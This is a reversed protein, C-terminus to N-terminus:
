SHAVFPVSSSRILLSHFPHAASSCGVLLPHAVFSCRILLSHAVFSCRIPLSPSWRSCTWRPKGPGDHVPGDHNKLDMTAPGDHEFVLFFLSHVDAGYWGDEKKRKKKLEHMNFYDLSKKIKRRANINVMSFM